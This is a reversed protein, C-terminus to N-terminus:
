VTKDASLATIRGQTFPLPDYDIKLGRVTLGECQDISLARTTQTCILEVNGAVIKGGHVGALRLHERNHPTVRYKGPPIVIRKQGAQVAKDVFGQLDFPRGVPAALSVTPLLTLFIAIFVRCFSAM